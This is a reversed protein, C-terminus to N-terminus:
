RQAHGDDAMRRAAERSPQEKNAAARTQEQRREAYKQAVTMNKVTQQYAQEFATAM